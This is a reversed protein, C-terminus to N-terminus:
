SARVLEALESERTPTEDQTRSGSIAVAVEKQSVRPRGVVRKALIIEGEDFLEGGWVGAPESRSIAGALCAAKMPCRGCLSKALAVESPIDSFFIDAGLAPNLDHCPLALERGDGTLSTVEGLGIMAEKGEKVQAWGPVLLESFLVAMEESGRM